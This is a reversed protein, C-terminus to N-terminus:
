NNPTINDDNKEKTETKTPLLGMDALIYEVAEPGMVPWAIQGFVLHSLSISPKEDPNTAKIRGLIEYGIYLVGGILGFMVWTAIGRKIGIKFLMVIGVLYCSLIGINRLGRIPFRNTLSFLITWLMCIGLIIAWKEDIM